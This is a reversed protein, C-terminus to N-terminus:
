NASFSIARNRDSQIAEVMHTIIVLRHRSSDYDALDGFFNAYLYDLLEADPLSRLFEPYQKREDELLM